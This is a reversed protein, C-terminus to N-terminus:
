LVRRPPLSRDRHPQTGVDVGFVALRELSASTLAQDQLSVECLIERAPVLEKRMRGDGMMWFDWRRRQWPGAQGANSTRLLSLEALREAPYTREVRGLYVRHRLGPLEPEVAVFSGVRLKSVLDRNAEAEGSTLEPGSWETPFNFRVLRSVSIPQGHHYTELTSPDELIAM